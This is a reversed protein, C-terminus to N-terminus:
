PFTSKTRFIVGGYVFFFATQRTPDAAEFIDLIRGERPEDDFYISKFPIM